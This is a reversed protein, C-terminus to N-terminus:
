MQFLPPQEGNPRVNGVNFLRKGEPSKRDTWWIGMGSPAYPSSIYLTQGKRPMKVGPDLSASFSHRVQREPMLM